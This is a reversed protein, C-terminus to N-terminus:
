PQTAPRVGGGASGQIGSAGVGAMGGAGIVMLMSSRRIESGDSFRLIATVRYEGEAMGKLPYQHTIAARAGDMTIAHSGGSLDDGIWEITLERSRADPEVRARVIVDSGITSIRASLKVSLPEPKKEAAVTASALCTLLATCASLFSHRNM